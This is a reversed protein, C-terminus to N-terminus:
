ADPSVLFNGHNELMRARNEITHNYLAPKGLFGSQLRLTLGKLPRERNLVRASAQGMVSQLGFRGGALVQGGSDVAQQLLRHAGGSASFCPSVSLCILILSYKIM